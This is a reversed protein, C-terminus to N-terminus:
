FPIEDEQAKPSVGLLELLGPDTVEAGGRQVPNEPDNIYQVKEYGKKDVETDIIFTKDLIKADLSKQWDGTVILAFNDRKLNIVELTDDFFKTAKESTSKTPVWLDQFYAKGEETKWKINLIARVAGKAEVQKFKMSDIKAKYEM